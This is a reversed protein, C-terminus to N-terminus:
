QSPLPERDRSAAARASRVENVFAKVRAPDVPNWTQGDVKLSSAVIVGDAAALVDRINDLRAGTNSFVPVEPGVAAKAQRLQSVDVEAGAMLGSVLIGDALSSVVASKARQAVTRSGLTSCFEPAINFFVRVHEASLQRRLRLTDAASPTWLGMDSEYAGTIVERIFSAGTTAAIAMSAKPDWMLDVGFPVGEPRTDCIVRTMAAVQEVEAHLTYPRDDENSYMIADVGGDLLHRIDRRVSDVLGRMGADANYRPTGPLAPIHAMAIVPKGVRFLQQTWDSM